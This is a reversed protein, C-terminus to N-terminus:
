NWTSIDFKITCSVKNIKLNQNPKTWLSNKQHLLPINKGWTQLKFLKTLMGHEAWLSFFKCIFKNCGSFLDSCAWLRHSNDRDMSAATSGGNKEKRGEQLDSPQCQRLVKIIEGDAVQGSNLGDSYSVEIINLFLCVLLVKTSEIHESGCIQSIGWLAEPATEWNSSCKGCLSIQRDLCHQHCLNEGAKIVFESFHFGCSFGQADHKDNAQHRRFDFLCIGLVHAAPLSREATNAKTCDM